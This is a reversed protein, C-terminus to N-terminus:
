LTLYLVKYKHVLVICDVKSKEINKNIEIFNRNSKLEIVLFHKIFRTNNSIICYAASM